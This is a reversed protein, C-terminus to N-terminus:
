AVPRRDRPAARGAVRPASGGPSRHARTEADRRWVDQVDTLEIWALVHVTEHGGERTGRFTMRVQAQDDRTLEALERREEVLRERAPVRGAVANEERAK